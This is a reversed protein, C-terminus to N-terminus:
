DNSHTSKQHTLREWFSNDLLIVGNQLTNLAIPNQLKLMSIFEAQTYGKPEIGGSICRYLLEMRKLPNLPLNNSIILVDIDSGLNFNGRAFSGYLIATLPGIEEKLKNAYESGVRIAKAREKRRENLAKYM